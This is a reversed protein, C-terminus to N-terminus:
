YGQPWGPATATAPTGYRDGSPATAQSTSSPLYDSTSGPRYYPDRRASAAGADVAATQYPEVGPPSYGTNGPNYGTNGPQYAGSATSDNGAAYRDAPPAGADLANASYNAQGGAATPSGAAYPDASPAQAQSAAASAAPDATAGASAYPNNV